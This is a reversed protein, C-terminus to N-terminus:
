VLLVLGRRAASRNGNRLLFDAFHDAHGPFADVLLQPDPSRTAPNPEFMASNDHEIGRRKLRQGLGSRIAFAGLPSRRKMRSQASAHWSIKDCCIHSVNCKNPGDHALRGHPPSKRWPSTEHVAREISKLLVTVTSVSARVDSEKRQWHKDHDRQDRQRDDLRRRGA